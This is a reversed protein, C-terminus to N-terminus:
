PATEDACLAMRGDLCDRDNWRGAQFAAAVRVEVCSKQTTGAPAGAIWNSYAGSEATGSADGNWFATGDSWRWVDNADRDADVWFGIDDPTLGETAAVAAASDAATFLLPLHLGMAACRAAADVRTLYETCFAFGRGDVAVGICPQPCSPAPDITGDCDDDLGNCRETTSCASGGAVGSSGGLDAIELRDARCGFLALAAIWVLPLREV